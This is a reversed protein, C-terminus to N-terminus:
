EFCNLVMCQTKDISDSKITGNQMSILKLMIVIIQLSFKLNYMFSIMFCHVYLKLM